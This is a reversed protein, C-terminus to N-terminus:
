RPREEKDYDTLWAVFWTCSHRKKMLGSPCRVQNKLAHKSRAAATDYVLEGGTPATNPVLLAGTRLPCGNAEVALNACIEHM